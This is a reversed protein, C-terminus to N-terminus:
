FDFLFEIKRLRKPPIFAISIVSSEPAGSFIIIEELSHGTLTFFSTHFVKYVNCLLNIVSTIRM